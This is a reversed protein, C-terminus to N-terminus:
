GQGVHRARLPFFFFLVEDVKVVEVVEVVEVVVGVVVAVEMLVLGCVLGGTAVCVGDAAEGEDVWGGSQKRTRYARSTM